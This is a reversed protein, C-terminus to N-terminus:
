FMRVVVPGLVTRRKRELFWGLCGVMPGLCSTGILRWLLLLLCQRAAIRTDMDVVEKGKFASSAAEATAAVDEKDETNSSTVPNASITSADIMDCDDTYSGVAAAADAASSSTSFGSITAFVDQPSGVPAVPFRSAFDPPPLSAFYQDSSGPIPAWDDDDEVILPQEGFKMGKPRGKEDDYEIEEISQEDPYRKPAEDLDEPGAWAEIDLDPM